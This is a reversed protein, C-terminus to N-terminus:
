KRLLPLNIVHALLAPILISWGPHTHVLQRWPLNAYNICTEIQGVRESGYLIQTPCFRFICCAKTLTGEVWFCKDTHTKHSADLRYAKGTYSKRPASDSIAIQFNGFWNKYRYNQRNDPVEERRCFQHKWHMENWLCLEVTTYITIDVVCM